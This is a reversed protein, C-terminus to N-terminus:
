DHARRRERYARFDALLAAVQSESLDGTGSSLWGILFGDAEGADAAELIHIAVARAQDTELQVLPNASESQNAIAITVYPKQTNHGFTSSISIHGDTPKDYTIDLAKSARAKAEHLTQAKLIAKLAMQYGHAASIPDTNM